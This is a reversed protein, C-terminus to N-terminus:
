YRMALASRPRRFASSHRLARARFALRSLAALLMTPLRSRALECVWHRPHSLLRFQATQEVRLRLVATIPKDLDGAAVISTITLTANGTNTLTVNQAASVTGVQQNSFTLNTASLSVAPALGTGTLAITQPSNSANDTITVAGTRTGAVTPTFTVSITCSSNAGLSAPCSNTEAFDGSSAISNIDLNVTGTNTLTVTQASSTTGVAQGGFTLSTTSLTAIPSGGVGTGTLFIYQPGDTANDSITITGTRTGAGTPAFTVSITCKAGPAISGGCNNADSFDGSPVIGYITLTANGINSLTVNQAASVTGVAQNGFTLSTASLSVIPAVGVGTLSITQPSGAANDTITVTGTRTGVQAPTFTVSITCSANSGLSNSCNNTQAYDGSTVISSIALPSEGQNTMTVNVANSTTNVIQSGFNISTTSLYVVPAALPALKLVAGSYNVNRPSTQFAGATANFCSGYYASGAAYAAGSADVAVANSPIGQTGYSSYICSYYSSLLSSGDASLTELYLGYYRLFYIDLSSDLAMAHVSDSQNGTGLYTSYDIGSGDPTLKTLFAGSYSTRYAGPTIPFNNISGTNGGVYAAGTGDVAIAYGYDPGSGGLYTSYVLASGTASLKTIFADSTGGQFTTRYGNPTTPFNQSSTTGTVYANGTTDVSIAQGYDNGSGGLYTSYALGTGDPTFKAVFADASGGSSTQFAGPTVPISGYTQGTIYASGASDVAISEGYYMQSGFCTSYVLASGANNLKAVFAPYYSSSCQQFAGSTTPFNSSNTSGTVYANGNSDLAVGYGYDDSSGGLYTSYVLASGTKNLKTIFADSGGANTTRYAGPTTPFDTSQTQGSIYAYGSNDVAIASGFDSTSGGLYTAYVLSPDIVLERRRDYQGIDFSVENGNRIKFKGSVPITAGDKDQSIVPKRFTVQGSGVNILLDGNKDVAMREAGSFALRIQGPYAHPAIVFDYELQGQAGYYVLDIGPYVSQFRVKKYLPVNSVWKKPDNGIFYNSRGELEDLTSVKPNPSAGEIRMRLISSGAPDADKAEIGYRSAREPPKGGDKLVMVAESDTLFTAYGEGRSLFRVEKDTQGRNAEFALPLKGYEEVARQRQLHDGTPASQASAGCTLLLAFALSLYALLRPSSM